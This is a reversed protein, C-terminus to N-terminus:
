ETSYPNYASNEWRMRNRVHANAIALAPITLMFLVMYIFNNYSPVDRKLNVTYDLATINPDKYPTIVLHYRGGKVSPVTWHDSTSGESWHEGDTYGYYYELGKSFEYSDDTDDNVLVVQTEFWSNSVGASLEYGVNKVDGDLVFSPTIITKGNTTDTVTYTSTFVSKNQAIASLLLSVVALVVVCAVVVHYTYQGFIRDSPEVVGVGYKQPLTMTPFANKLKSGAIHTGLFWRYSDKTSELCVINPPNIYEASHIAKHKFIDHFFEGQADLVKCDFLNFLSYTQTQYDVTSYNKLKFKYNTELTIKIWNGDYVSLFIYGEIPSFLYYEQWYAADNAAYKLTYGLVTYEIGDIVGTSGIEFASYYNNNTKIKSGKRQTFRALQVFTKCGPCVVHNAQAHSFVKINQACDPCAVNAPAAMNLMLQKQKIDVRLNELNLDSRNVWQGNFSYVDTKHSIYYGAKNGNGNLEFVIADDLHLPLNPLEGECSQYSCQSVTLVHYSTGKVQSFKEGAEITTLNVDKPRTSSNLHLLAMGAMGEAIFNFTPTHKNLTQIYWLNLHGNNLQLRCRGIVNFHESNYSGTTGIKLLTFDVPVTHHNIVERGGAVTRYVTHNCNGCVKYYSYLNTFNESMGCHSCTAIDSIPLQEM